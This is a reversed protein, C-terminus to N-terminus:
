EDKSEWQKEHSAVWQEAEERLAFVGLPTKEGDLRQQMVFWRVFWIGAGVPVSRKEIQITM